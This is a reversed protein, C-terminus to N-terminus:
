APTAGGMEAAMAARLTNALKTADANKLYVVHINGSANQSRPAPGAKEAWRACWTLRAPNAARVMLTNSRPEAV